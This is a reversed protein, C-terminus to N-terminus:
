ELTVTPLYFSLITQHSLQEAWPKAVKLTVTQWNLTPYLTLKNTIPKGGATITVFNITIIPWDKTEQAPNKPKYTM